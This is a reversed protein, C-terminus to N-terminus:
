PDYVVVFTDGVEARLEQALRQGRTTWDTPVFGGRRM